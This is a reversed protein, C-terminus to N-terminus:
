GIMVNTVDLLGTVSGYGGSYGTITSQLGHLLIQPLINDDDVFFRFLALRHVLASLAQM